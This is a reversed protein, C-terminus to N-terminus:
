KYIDGRTNISVIELYDGEWFYVVRFKGVRLRFLDYSKQGKLRKIDGQNPLKEIAVLIKARLSIDLNALYKQSSRRFFVKM